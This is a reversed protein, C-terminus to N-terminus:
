GRLLHRGAERTIGAVQAVRTLPIGEAVAEKVAARLESRAKERAEHANKFAAGAQRVRDLPKV